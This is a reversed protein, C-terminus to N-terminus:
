APKRGPMIMRIGKKIFPWFLFVMSIALFIVALPRNFVDNFRGNSAILARRLHNEVMPGLVFGLILAVMDIKFQNLIYGVIAFTVMIGLDFIRNNLAFVGLLCFVVIAPFLLSYPVNVM